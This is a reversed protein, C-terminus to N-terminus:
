TNSLRTELATLNLSRPPRVIATAQVDRSSLRAVTSHCTVSVPIPM